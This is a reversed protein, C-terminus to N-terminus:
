FSFPTLILYYSICFRRVVWKMLNSQLELDEAYCITKRTYERNRKKREEGRGDRSIKDKERERGRRVFRVRERERKKDM